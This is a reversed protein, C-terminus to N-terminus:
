KTVQWLPMYKVGDFCSIYFLNAPKGTIDAGEPMRYSKIQRGAIRLELAMGDESAFTYTNDPFDELFSKKVYFLKDDCIIPEARIEAQYLERHLSSTRWDSYFMSNMEASSKEFVGGHPILQSGKELAQYVEPAVRFVVGSSDIYYADGEYRTIIGNAGSLKYLESTTIM